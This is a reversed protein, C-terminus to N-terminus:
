AQGIGLGKCAQNVVPGDLRQSLLDVDVDGQGLISLGHCDAMAAQQRHQLGTGTVLRQTQLAMGRGDDIDGQGLVTLGKQRETLVAADADEIPRGCRGAHRTM